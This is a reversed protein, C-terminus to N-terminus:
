MLSGWISVLAARAIRSWFALARSPMPYSRWSVALEETLVLRDASMGTDTLPQATTHRLTPGPSAGEFM